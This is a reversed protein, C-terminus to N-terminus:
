LELPVERDEALSREAALCIAVARRGEEGSVIPKRNKFADVTLRLQEEL